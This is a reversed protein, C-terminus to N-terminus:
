DETIVTFEDPLFVHDITKGSRLTSPVAVVYAAGYGAAPGVIRGIRPPGVRFKVAVRTGQPLPHSEQQLSVICAEEPLLDIEADCVVMTQRTGYHNLLDDFEILLPYPRSQRTSVITAKHGERSPFVGPQLVCRRQYLSTEYNM